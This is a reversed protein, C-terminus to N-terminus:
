KVNAAKFFSSVSRQKTNPGKTADAEVKRKGILTKAKGKSQSVSNKERPSSGAKTENNSANEPPGHTTNANHVEEDAKTLTSLTVMTGASETPEVHEECVPPDSEKTINKQISTVVENVSASALELKSTVGSGKVTSSVM